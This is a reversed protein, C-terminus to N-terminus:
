RAAFYRRLTRAELRLLVWLAPVLAPVGVIGARSFAAEVTHRVATRDVTIAELLYTHAVEVMVSTVLLTVSVPPELAAVQISQEGSGLTSLRYRSGVGIPGTDERRAGSVLPSWTAGSTVDAIAAFVADLPGEVEHKLRFTVM